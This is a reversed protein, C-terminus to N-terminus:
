CSNFYNVCEDPQSIDVLKGILDCLRCVSREGAKRLMPRSVSSRRRSRSSSGVRPPLFLLTAGAAEIKEKMVARKHGLLNDMIVIDGRHREPVLVKTVYAEFWDGNIPGDLMILGIMATRRLVAVLTPTKYHGHPFGLRLREGKPCLGHSRTM